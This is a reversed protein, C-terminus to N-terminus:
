RSIAVSKALYSVTQIVQEVFIKELVFFLFAVASFLVILFFIQILSTITKMFIM